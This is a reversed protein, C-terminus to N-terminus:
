CIVCCVTNPICVALLALASVVTAQNPEIRSAHDLCAEQDGKSGILCDIWPQLEDDSYAGPDRFRLVAQGVYV